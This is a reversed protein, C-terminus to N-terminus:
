YFFIEKGTRTLDLLSIFVKIFFLVFLFEENKVVDAAAMDHM